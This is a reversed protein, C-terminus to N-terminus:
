QLNNSNCITLSISFNIKGPLLFEEKRKKGKAQSTQQAKRSEWSNGHGDRWYADYSLWSIPTYDVLKIIVITVPVSFNMHEM